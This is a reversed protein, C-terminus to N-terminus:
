HLADGGIAASASWERRMIFVTADCGESVVCGLSILEGDQGAGLDQKEDHGLRTQDVGEGRGLQLREDGLGLALVEDLYTAARRWHRTANSVADECAQKFAGSGELPSAFPTSASLETSDGSSLWAWTGGPWGRPIGGLLLAMGWAYM